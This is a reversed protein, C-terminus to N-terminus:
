PSARSPCKADGAKGTRCSAMADAATRAPPHSQDAHRMHKMLASLLEVDADRPEPSPQNRAQARARAAATASPRAHAERKPAPAARAAPAKRIATSSGSVNAGAVTRTASDEPGKRAPMPAPAAQKAAIAAPEDPDVSSRSAEIAPQLSSVAPVAPPAMALPVADVVNNRSPVPTRLTAQAAAVPATRSATDAAAPGFVAFAGWAGAIVLVGTAAFLWPKTYSPSTTRFKREQVTDLINVDHSTDGTHLLTPRSM